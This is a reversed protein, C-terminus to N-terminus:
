NPGLIAESDMKLTKVKGTLERVKKAFRFIFLIILAKKFSNFSLSKFFVLSEGSELILHVISLFFRVNFSHFVFSFKFRNLNLLGSFPGKDKIDETPWDSSVANEQRGIADCCVLSKPPEVKGSISCNM